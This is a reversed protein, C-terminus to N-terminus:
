LWPAITLMIQTIRRKATKSSNIRTDALRYGMGNQFFCLLLHLPYTIKGCFQNGFDKM